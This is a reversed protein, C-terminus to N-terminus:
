FVTGSSTATRTTGLKADVGVVSLIPRSITTRNTGIRAQDRIVRPVVLDIVGRRVTKNMTIYILCVSGHACQWALQGILVVEPPSYFFQMYVYIYAAIANFSCILVSQFFIQTQTKSISESRFHKSKAFLLICLYAYISTTAMSVVCNNITHAINIYDSAENGPLMPNFFWSMYNSNFLIPKTFFTSYITYLIPISITLYMKRGIFITRIRLHQNVDCCRNIGLLICSACSGMWCGCGLSGMFFIFFPYSCFTAGVFGLFGTAVSNTLICCIDLIGLCVMIKYCSSKMLDSRAVVILCPIYIILLIFGVTMFYTGLYQRPQGSAFGDVGECSYFHQNLQFGNRFVYNLSQDLDSTLLEM